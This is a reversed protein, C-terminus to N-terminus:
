RGPVRRLPGHRLVRCRCRRRRGGDRRVGAVTRNRRLFKGLRDASRAPLAEIPRAHLHRRLDEALAQSREPLAQGTGQRANEACHRGSRGATASGVKGTDDGRAAAADAELLASPKKVEVTAISHELLGISAARKQTPLAPRRDATRVVAGGLSYVDGCSRGVVGAAGGAYDLHRGSEHLDEHDM